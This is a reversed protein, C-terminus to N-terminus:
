LISYCCEFKSIKHDPVINSRFELEPKLNMTTDLLLHPHKYKSVVYDYIAIVNKATDKGYLQNALYYLQNKDRIKLFLFLSSNLSIDRAYSNKNFFLNHCVLVISLNSHRGHIFYNLVNENKFSHYYNDDLYIVKKSKISFKSNIESISPIDKYVHIKAKLVDIDQM